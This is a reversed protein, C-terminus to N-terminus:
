FTGGDTIQTNTKGNLFKANVETLLSGDVAPLAGTSGPGYLPSIGLVIINGSKIGTKVSVHGTVSVTFDNDNFSAVGTSGTTAVPVLPISIESGIVTSLKTWSTNGTGGMLSYYTSDGSVFVVMGQERRADVIADRQATTGLTRLGGLGYKPDTIFVPDTETNPGLPLGISIYGTIPM